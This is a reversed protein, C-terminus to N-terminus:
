RQSSSAQGRRELHRGDQRRVRHHCSRWGPRVRGVMRKLHGKLVAIVECTGPNWVRATNDDSATIIRPGDPSFAAGRLIGDHGNLEGLFEGTTPTGYTPKRTLALLSSALAMRGASSPSTLTPAIRCGTFSSVQKRMGFAPPKTRQPPSSGRAMRASPPPFFGVMQNLTM